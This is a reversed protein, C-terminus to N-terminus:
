TQMVYFLNSGWERWDDTFLPSPSGKSSFSPLSTVFCAFSKWDKEETNSPIEEESFDVVLSSSWQEWTHLPSPCMM